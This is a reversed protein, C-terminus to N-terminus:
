TTLSDAMLRNTNIKLKNIGIGFAGNHVTSKLEARLGGEWRGNGKVPAPITGTRDGGAEDGHMM